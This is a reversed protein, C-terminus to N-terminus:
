SAAPLTRAAIKARLIEIAKERQNKELRILEDPQGTKLYRDMVGPIDVKIDPEIGIKNISHGGATLYKAVTVSLAGGGSIPVIEQVLGKGYTKAGVLTAIGRDRLAGSVIESASASWQNTLIVLPYHRAKSPEAYYAKRAEDRKLMYMVVGGDLFKSSVGIAADLLGGPNYRLDLIVGQAQERDAAILTEELENTTREAFQAISIFAIPGARTDQIIELDVSPLNINARTITLEYTKVVSGEGRLITLRVTTGPRGRISAVSEELSMSDTSRGNIKIIQDGRRLGASEGPSGKLAKMIILKKAEYSLTIGIGGFMGNTQTQLDTFEAPNLYRTYPDGLDALMGDITGHRLYSRFLSLLSVPEVFRTKVQLMVPLAKDMQKYRAGASIGFAVLSIIALFLGALIYQRGRHNEAMHAGRQTIGPKGTM